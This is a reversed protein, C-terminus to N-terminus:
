LPVTVVACPAAHGLQQATSSTQVLWSPGGRHHGIVLVDHDGAQVEQLIEGVVNGRRITMAVDGLKQQAATNRVRGEITASRTLLLSGHGSEPIASGEVTIVHLAAGIAQAFACAEDLVKMGRESGDLAVLISSLRSGTEPVFLTLLRSRRAVADATDGLLLRSRECHEKRGVVILDAGCEEAFRCIEISPVGYAVSLPASANDELRRRVRDDSSTAEELVSVGGAGVTRLGRRVPAAVVHLVTVKGSSRKSIEVATRVAEDAADSEDVAVVIHQSM